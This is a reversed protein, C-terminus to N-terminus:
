QNWMEESFVNSDERTSGYEATIETHVASHTSSIKFILTQYKFSTSLIFSCIISHNIWFLQATMSFRVKESLKLSCFISMNSSLSKMKLWGKGKNDLCNKCKKFLLKSWHYYTKAWSVTKNCIGQFRWNKRM